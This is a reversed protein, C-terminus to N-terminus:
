PRVLRTLALGAVPTYALAVALPGHTVLRTTTGGGARAVVAHDLRLHVPGVRVTWTWTRAPEDVADVTFDVRLGAPGHVAGTADDVIRDHSCEVRRIQPSWEHWRSPVAYREWVEAPDARGHVVLPVASM